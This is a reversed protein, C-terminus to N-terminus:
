QLQTAPFCWVVENGFFDDKRAVSGNSSMRMSMHPGIVGVVKPPLRYKRRIMSSKERSVHTDISFHLDSAKSAKLCKLFKAFVSFPIFILVRMDSLPPSNM